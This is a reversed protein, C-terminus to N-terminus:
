RHTGKMLMDNIDTFLTPRVSGDPRIERAARSRLSLLARRRTWGRGCRTLGTPWPDPEALYGNFHQRLEHWQQQRIHRRITRWTACVESQARNVRWQWTVPPRTAAPFRRAPLTLDPLTLYRWARRANALIGVPYVDIRTM